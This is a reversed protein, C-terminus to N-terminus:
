MIKRATLRTFNSAINMTSKVSSSIILVLAIRPLSRDIYADLSSVGKVLLIVNWAKKLM